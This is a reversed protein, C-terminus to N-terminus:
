KRHPQTNKEEMRPCFATDIAITSKMNRHQLENGNQKRLVADQPAAAKEKYPRRRSFFEQAKWSHMYMCFIDYRFALFYSM